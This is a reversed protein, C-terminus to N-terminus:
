FTNNYAIKEELRKLADRAYRIGQDAAKHYWGIAVEYDQEVGQGKEYLFGLINQAQAHGQEAAGLHWRFSEEYNQSVGYGKSYLFGLNVQAQANGQVAAKLYWEAAKGYDQEVGHGKEYMFGLNSKAEVDGQEAARRYWEFAEAYNQEVGQGKEYMVGLRNQAYGYGHEAARRYWRVAEKYDQEIEQGKEYMVGLSNQARAYGYEAVKSYLAIAEKYYQEIGQGKEYAVGPTFEEKHDRSAGKVEEYVVDLSADQRATKAKNGPVVPSRNIVPSVVDEQMLLSSKNAINTQTSLSLQNLPIPKELSQPQNSLYTTGVFVLGAIVFFVCILAFVKKSLVNEVNFFSPAKQQHVIEEENDQYRHLKSYSKLGVECVCKSVIHEDITLTELAYGALLVRDCLINILRPTGKCNEYIADIADKTFRVGNVTDGSSAVSIRHKIYNQVEHRELPLIHYRVTIRQDLQRLSQLNLKECLEPQGVLIIQLLKEKETELNSLLRIQELQEVELNQAEDIILAINNGNYTEKLLFDNLANILSFKNKFDGKIGLDKLIFQLLQLGSCSPNLIMATKVNSESSSRYSHLLKRCVTTKGTGVEGTILLIGKRQQIGYVLNSLADTHRTSSFFFDPDPTVNFPNEKLHYFEKYM